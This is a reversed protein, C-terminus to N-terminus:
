ASGDYFLAPSAPNRRNERADAVTSADKNFAVARSSGTAGASEIAGTKGDRIALLEAKAPNAKPNRPDRGKSAVAEDCSTQCVYGNVVSVM